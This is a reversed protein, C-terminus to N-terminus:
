SYGRSTMWSNFWDWFLVPSELDEEFEGMLFDELNDHLTDFLRDLMATEDRLAQDNRDKGVKRIRQTSRVVLDIIRAVSEGTLEIANDPKCQNRLELAHVLGELHNEFENLISDTTRDTGFGYVQALEYSQITLDHWLKGLGTTTRWMERPTRIENIVKLTSM